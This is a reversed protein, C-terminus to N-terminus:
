FVQLINFGNVAGYIERARFLAHFAVIFVHVHHILRSRKEAPRDYFLIKRCILKVTTSTITVYKKSQEARYTIFIEILQRKM